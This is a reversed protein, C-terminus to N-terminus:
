DKLILLESDSLSAKEVLAPIATPRLSETMQRLEELSWWRIERLIRNESISMGYQNLQPAESVRCLFYSEQSLVAGVEPLSLEVERYAVQRKIQVHELGLEEQLERRVAEEPLEGPEVGGGPTAWYDLSDPERLDVPFLDEHRILLVQDRTNLLLARASKRQKVVL